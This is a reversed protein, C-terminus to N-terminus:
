SHRLTANTEPPPFALAVSSSGAVELTSLVDDAFEEGSTASPFGFDYNFGSEFASVNCGERPRAPRDRDAGANRFTGSRSRSHNM